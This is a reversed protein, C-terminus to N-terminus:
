ESGSSRRCANDSHCMKDTEDAHVNMLTNSTVSYHRRCLSGGADTAAQAPEAHVITSQGRAVAQEVRSSLASRRGVSNPALVIRHSPTCIRSPESRSLTFPSRILSASMTHAAM